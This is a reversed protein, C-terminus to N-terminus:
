RSGLKDIAGAIAGIADAVNAGRIDPAIAEAIERLAVVGDKLLPLFQLMLMAVVWGSDADEATVKDAILKTLQENNMPSEEQTM